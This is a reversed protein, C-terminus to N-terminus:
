KTNMRRIPEIRKMIKKSLLGFLSFIGMISNFAVYDIHNQDGYFFETKYPKKQFFYFDKEWWGSEVPVCVVQEVLKLNEETVEKDGFYQISYSSSNKFGNYFQTETLKKFENDSFVFILTTKLNKDSANVNIVYNVKDITVRYINEDCFKTQIYEKWNKM